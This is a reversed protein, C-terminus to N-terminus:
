PVNDRLEKLWPEPRSDSPARWDGRPSLSGGSSIKPANPVCSRKFQSIAFFRFLFVEMWKKIEALSYAVKEEDRLNTPWAGANKDSWAHHALFAIKSPRFGYRTIYYLTFDQLNYPGIKEQTSQLNGEADAPVLEPTIETDLISVLTNSLDDSYQSTKIVWRILHQILTKPVSANVNYHSMHDGVGYTCWGLALESLDGTGVVLGNEHNAIRFLYDTRLGAQVNEFAVDYVPTNTAATHGMDSFMQNAAPRIDIERADVGLGKMLDWANGKTHSSTAFGPMTIAIVNKRPLDLLDMARTSVLLAHTSDLGGSIGIVVRKIGSAKLRSALGHVQINYAEYCDQDLRSPDSPVYPFRQVDRDLPIEKDLPPDFAFSIRRVAKVQDQFSQAGDRFTGFRVREQVLRDLDIDATLMTSTMSFRDSQALRRGNEFIALHGDWALDTTSEGQGAASYLYAAVCRRSQADSLVNRDEAKGITINSASLNCLVNAGAFAGITSPPVPAWMDECIEAFFSFNQLDTAEFLLNTGFPVTQGCIEVSDEAASAGSAFYRKEYFERYNPLFTKPVIGLIDGKHIVVAANYVSYGVKIPAGVILVSMVNRSENVLQGIANVVDDLLADQHHLDDLAYGSLGLEPFITLAVNNEHADKALVVTEALNSAPDAVFIEPACTAVRLFGHKYLCNFAGM